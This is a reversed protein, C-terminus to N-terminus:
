DDCRGITILRIADDGPWYECRLYVDAEEFRDFAFAIAMLGVGGADISMAPAGLATRVDARSKVLDLGAPLSGAYADFGEVGQAYFFAARVTHDPSLAFSIGAGRANLYPSEGMIEAAAGGFSQRYIDLDFAPQGLWSFVAHESFNPM